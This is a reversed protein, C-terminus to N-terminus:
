WDGVANMMQDLRELAIRISKSQPLAAPVGKALIEEPLKRKPRKAQSLSAV